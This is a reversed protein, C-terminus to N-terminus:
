YFGPMENLVEEQYKTGLHALEGLEDITEAYEAMIYNFQDSEALTRVTEFAQDKRKRRQSQLSALGSESISLTERAITDIDKQVELDRNTELMAYIREVAVLQAMRKTLLTENQLKETKAVAENVLRGPAQTAEGFSRAPFASPVNAIFCEEIPPRRSSMDDDPPDQNKELSLRGVMEPRTITWGIDEHWHYPLHSAIQFGESLHAARVGLQQFAEPINGVGHQPNVEFVANPVVFHATTDTYHLPGLSVSFQNKLTRIPEAEFARQAAVLEELLEERPPIPEDGSLEHEGGDPRELTIYCDGEHAVVEDVVGARIPIQEGDVTCYEREALISDYIAEPQPAYPM